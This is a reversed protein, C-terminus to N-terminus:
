TMDAYPKSISERASAYSKRLIEPGPALPRDRYPTKSSPASIGALQDGALTDVAFVNV